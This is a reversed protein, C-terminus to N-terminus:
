LFQEDRSLYRSNYVSSGPRRVDTLRMGIERNIGDLISHFRSASDFRGYLYPVAADRYPSRQTWMRNMQRSAM